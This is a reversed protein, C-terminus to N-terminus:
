QIVNFHSQFFFMAENRKRYSWLKWFKVSLYKYPEAFIVNMWELYFSWYFCKKREEEWKLYSTWCTSFCMKIFKVDGLFKVLQRAPLDGMIITTYFHKIKKTEEQRLGKPSSRLHWNLFEGGSFDGPIRCRMLKSVLMTIDDGCLHRAVARYWFPMLYVM